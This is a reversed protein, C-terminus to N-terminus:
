MCTFFHCANKVSLSSGISFFNLFFHVFRFYCIRDVFRDLIDSVSLDYDHDIVLIAFILAIEDHRGLFDSGFLDIEHQVVPAANQTGRQGLVAAM